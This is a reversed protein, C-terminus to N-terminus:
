LIPTQSDREGKKKGHRWALFCRRNCFANGDESVVESPWRTVIEGCYTCPLEIKHQIGKRYPRSLWADVAAQEFLKRGAPALRSVPLTGEHVANYVAGVSVGAVRAVESAGLLM